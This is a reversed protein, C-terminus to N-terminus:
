ISNLEIWVITYIKFHDYPLVRLHSLRNPHNFAIGSIMVKIGTITFTESTSFIFCFQECQMHTSNSVLSLRHCWTRSKISHRGRRWTRLTIGHRRPVRRAEQRWLISLFLLYCPALSARRNFDMMISLKNTFCASFNEQQHDLRDPRVYPFWVKTLRFKM